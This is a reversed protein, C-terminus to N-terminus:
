LRNETETLPYAVNKQTFVNKQKSNALLCVGILLYPVLSSGEVLPACLTRLALEAPARM